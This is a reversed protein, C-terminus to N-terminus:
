HLEAVSVVEFRGHAVKGLEAKQDHEGHGAEVLEAKTGGVLLVQLHHGPSLHGVVAGRPPLVPEVVLSKYRTTM